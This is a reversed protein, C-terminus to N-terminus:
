IIYMADGYSFFRYDEKIAMGYAKKMLELGAFASVLIFLSSEPLHFNTIMKDVMQFEFGPYIFLESSFTKSVTKKQALTELARVSTTGVAILNKKKKSRIIQKKVEPLITITEKGMQHDEVNQVEIKQFTAEGVELCIQFVAIKKRVKELLENTFHLGATPAAISGPSSSYVTQYRSLDFNKYQRAETSKRKIYLPLPAYGHKFITSYPQSFKLIRRGREGIEVVEAWLDQNIFFKEGIRFKKAPQTLSEVLRESRKKVILVEASRNNITGFFKIPIVRSHNIVMFDDKKLLQTIDKFVCHDISGTKRDVVMLKSGDRKKLPFRAIRDPPLCFSFDKLKM